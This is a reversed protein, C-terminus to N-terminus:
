VSTTMLFFLGPSSHVRLDAAKQTLLRGENVKAATAYPHQKSLNFTERLMSSTVTPRFISDQFQGARELHLQRCHFIIERAVFAAATNYKDSLSRM